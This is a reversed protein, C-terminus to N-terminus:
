GHRRSRSGGSECRLMEAEAEEAAEAAAEAERRRAPESARVAQRALHRADFRFEGHYPSDSGTMQYLTSYWYYGWGGGKRRDSWLYGERAVENLVQDFDEGLLRAIEGAVVLHTGGGASVWFGGFRSAAEALRFFEIIAYIM